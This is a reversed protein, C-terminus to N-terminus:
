NVNTNLLKDFGPYIYEFLDVVDKDQLIKKPDNILLIKKLEKELRTSSISKINKKYKYITNLLNADHPYKSYKYFFRFYRLARVFDEQISIEPSKIFKIRGEVLDKKGNYPDWFNIINEEEHIWNCYISNITFDRREADINWDKTFIIKAYRGDPFLDKRLTTVEFKLNNIIVTVIGFKIANTTFEIKKTELRKIVERPELITALDIDSIKHNLIIDRVCGGVFRTLDPKPNLLKYIIKAEPITTLKNAM